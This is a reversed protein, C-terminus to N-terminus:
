NGTNQNNKRFKPWEGALGNSSTYVSYLFNDSSFYISGESSIAPSSYIKGSTPLEWKKNGKSDVAYIKGDYSGTYVIGDAGVVPSTTIINNTAFTWKQIATATASIDLAYLKGDNSGFYLTNNNDIVPSSKIIDGTEFEWKFTISAPDSIDLAYINKDYSGIYLTSGDSSIAPSSTIYGGTTYTGELTISGPSSINLAYVNKDYSAAYLTNGDSSIVPSSTIYGGTKYEALKNGTSTDLAYIKNDNSGIYLTNGSIVPSSNVYGGTTFTWKETGSPNVAYVKKDSSGFYITGDSSVVPSSTLWNNTKYKWIINGNSDVAYLNGDDSGFYVTKEDNSLAPNSVINSQASYKWNVEGIEKNPTTITGTAYSSVSFDKYAYVRYFYQTNMLLGNDTFSTVNSATETIESYNIDDTSREIKFGDENNSNDKWDIKIETKSLSMLTLTSPASITEQILSISAEASYNSIGYNNFTYIRYTFTSGNTIESSNDTYKVSNEPLSAILSWNGTDKKREIKYGSENESKDTWSILIELPPRKSLSINIPPLPIELPVSKKYNNTFVMFDMLEIERSRESDVVCYIDKWLESGKEAPGIDYLQDYMIDGYVTNYHKAFNIFDILDVNEDDNFDGLLFSVPSVAIKGATFAATIDTSPDTYSKLSGSINIPTEGRFNKTKINVKIINEDTFNKASTFAVSFSKEGSLSNNDSIVLGDSTNGTLEINEISFFDESYEIKLNFGGLDNIGKARIMFYDDTNEKFNKNEVYLGNPESGRLSGSFDKSQTKTSIILNKLSNINKLTIIETDKPIKESKVVAIITNGNEKKNIVMLDDPIEIDSFEGRFTIEAGYIDESNYVSLVNKSIIFNLGDSKLSDNKIKSVCGTLLFFVALIIIFIFVRKRM